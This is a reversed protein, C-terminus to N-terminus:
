SEEKHGLLAYTKDYNLWADNAILMARKENTVKIAKQEDGTDVGWTIVEQPEAYGARLYNCFGPQRDIRNGTSKEVSRVDGNKYMQVYMLEVQDFDSISPDLRFEEVEAHCAKAYETAKEETTFIAIVGYDSYEGSSVAWIVSM